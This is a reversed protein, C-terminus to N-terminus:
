NEKHKTPDSIPLVGIHSTNYTSILVPHPTDEQHRRSVRKRTYALLNGILVKFIRLSSVSYVRMM